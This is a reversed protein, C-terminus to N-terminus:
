YEKSKGTNFKCFLLLQSRGFKAENNFVQSKLNWDM